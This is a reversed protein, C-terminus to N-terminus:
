HATKAAPASDTSKDLALVDAVIEEDPLFRSEVTLLKEDQSASFSARLGATPFTQAVNHLILPHPAALIAAGAFTDINRLGPCFLDPELLIQDQSVDLQGCDAVVADAAPAALVSWLGARGHGCLVIRRGVAFYSNRVGECISVLDRVREQLRTRNYTCFFISKQDPNAARGADAAVVVDLGQDLFLRALGIPEGANDIFHAKGEADALVMLDPHTTSTSKVPTFHVLKIREDEDPRAVELDESFHGEKKSDTVHIMNGPSIRAKTPWNLQLTRAWAPEMIWKYSDLSLDNTPSIGDLQDRHMKILRAILDKQSVADPPLKGDPFALLDQDPEKQFPQEAVPQDAKHLLWKDFWQYVAQRSTQNYNHVFDFCVYRLKETAQFFQYIHEIAPGEVSLTTKTWDKTDSVLIQPRPAAAAAIEMNSYEVRLGPMNECLCGGQMTHSVMVVPAQAALRDDIAGLIMTQTGGGSAGTLAMRTKDVAPLSALFDLARLSDWTQLGMLTVSWLMASPDDAAFSHHKKSFSESPPLDSFSTDNYGVMDYAFAIMGQKAFNICRGPNSCLDTDELRGHDWHGHANLIAPFPGAGKGLPRYLNGALYFGPWSQFYVKEVSYGDREIRGSIVPQLPTKAPMPWLGSSVLIQERIARSREQWQEQSTITPFSRPTDLTQVAAKPEDAGFAPALAFVFCLFLASVNRM